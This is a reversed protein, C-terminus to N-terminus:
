IDTPFPVSLDESIAESPVFGPDPQAETEEDKKAAKETSATTNDSASSNTTTSPAASSSQAAVPLSIVATILTMAIAIRKM